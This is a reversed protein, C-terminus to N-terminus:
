LVELFSAPLALLFFVFRILKSLLNISKSAIPLKTILPFSFIISCRFARNASSSVAILWYMTWALQAFVPIVLLQFFHDLLSGDGLHPMRFFKDCADEEEFPFLDDAFQVLYDDACLHLIYM